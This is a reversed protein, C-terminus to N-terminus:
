YTPPEGVCWRQDDASHLSDTAGHQLRLFVSHGNFQWRSLDVDASVAMALILGRALTLFFDVFDIPL